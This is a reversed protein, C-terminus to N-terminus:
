ICFVIQDRLPESEHCFIGCFSQDRETCCLGHSDVKFNQAAWFVFDVM